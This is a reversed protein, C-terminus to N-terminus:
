GRYPIDHRKYLKFKNIALLDDLTFGYIDLVKAFYYLADGLEEKLEATRDQESHFWMKKHIDIVEGVEGALGLLANTLHGRDDKIRHWQDWTKDVVDRAHQRLPDVPQDPVRVRDEM